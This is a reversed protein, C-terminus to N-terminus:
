ATRRQLTSGPHCPLTDALRPSLLSGPPPPPPAGAGGGGGRPPAPAAERRGGATPAAHPAGCGGAETLIYGGDDDIEIREPLVPEEWSVGHTIQVRPAPSPQLRALCGRSASAAPGSHGACAGGREGADAWRGRGWLPFCLGGWGQRREVAGLSFAGGGGWRVGHVWGGVGAGWRRRWAGPQVLLEAADGPRQVQVLAGGCVADAGRRRVLPPCPRSRAAPGGGGQAIDWCRGGGGGPAEGLNV